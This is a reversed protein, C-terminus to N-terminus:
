FPTHLSKFLISYIYTYKNIETTKIQKDYNLMIKTKYRFIFLCYMFVSLFSLYVYKISVIM